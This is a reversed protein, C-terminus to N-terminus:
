DSYRVVSKVIDTRSKCLMKSIWYQNQEVDSNYVIHCYYAITGYTTPYEITFHHPIDRFVSYFKSWDLLLPNPYM